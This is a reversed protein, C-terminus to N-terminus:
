SRRSSTASGSACWRRTTLRPCSRAQPQSPTSSTARPYAAAAPPLTPHRRRPRAGQTVAALREVGDFDAHEIGMVGNEALLQEPWNYILQRNVFCNIGHSTIREVKAKMKAKEADEIAAVKDM